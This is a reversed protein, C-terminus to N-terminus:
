ECCEIIRELGKKLEYKKFERLGKPTNKIAITGRKWFKRHRIIVDNPILWLQMPKPNKDDKPRKGFALLLFQEAIENHEIHFYWGNGSLLSSSKVDVKYGKGCIFDYGKHGHPMREVNEKKFVHALIREAINVGLYLSCDKNESMLGSRGTDYRYEKQREAYDIYGANNACHNRYETSTKCGANKITKNRADRGVETPDPAIGNDVLFIAFESSSIFGYKKIDNQFEPTSRSRLYNKNNKIKERIEAVIIATEEKTKTMNNSGYKIIIERRKITNISQIQASGSNRFRYSVM